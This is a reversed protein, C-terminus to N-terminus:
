QKYQDYASVSKEIVQKSEPYELFKAHIKAFKKRFEPSEKLFHTAIEALLVMMEETQDYKEPNGEKMKKLDENVM